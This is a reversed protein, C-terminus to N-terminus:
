DENNNSEKKIKNVQPTVQIILRSTPTLAGHRWWEKLMKDFCEFSCFDRVLDIDYEDNQLKTQLKTQLRVVILDHEPENVGPDHRINMESDYEVIKKRCYDCTYLDTKM